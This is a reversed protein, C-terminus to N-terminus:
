LGLRLWLPGSRVGISASPYIGGSSISVGANATPRIPDGDAGCAVLGLIAFVLVMLRM